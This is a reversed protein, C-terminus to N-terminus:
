KKPQTTTPTPISCDPLAKATADGRAKKAAEAECRAVCAAYAAYDNPYNALCGAKYTLPDTVVNIQSQGRGFQQTFIIALVILVLLALAVVVLTSITMEVGKKGKM